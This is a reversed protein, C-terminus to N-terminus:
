WAPHDYNTGGKEARAALRALNIEAEYIGIKV